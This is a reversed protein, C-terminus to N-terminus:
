LRIYYYHLAYEKCEKETGTFLILNNNSKWIVAYINNINDIKKLEFVVKKNM